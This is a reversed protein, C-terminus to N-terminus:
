RNRRRRRVSKVQKRYGKTLTRGERHAAKPNFREATLATTPFVHARLSALRHHDTHARAIHRVVIRRRTIATRTRSVPHAQSAAVAGVAVTVGAVTRRRKKRKAAASAGTSTFRGRADRHYVRKGKRRRRVM